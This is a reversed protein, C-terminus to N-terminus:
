INNLLVIQHIEIHNEKTSHYKSQFIKMAQFMDKAIIKENLFTVDNSMASIIEDEAIRIKMFTILYIKDIGIM